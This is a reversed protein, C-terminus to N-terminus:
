VVAEKRIQSDVASGREEGKQAANASLSRALVTERPWGGLVHVPGASVALFWLSDDDLALSIDTLLRQHARVLAAQTHTDTHTHRFRKDLNTSASVPITGTVQDGRNFLTTPQVAYLPRSFAPHTTRNALRSM